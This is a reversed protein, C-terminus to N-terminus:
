AHRPEHKDRRKAQELRYWADLVCAVSWAQAPAGRPTHPADGDFIESISGLGAECLHGRIAALRSQALEANQSVRYEALAYHGLLWAWVTGQHYAMDRADVGGRYQGHYDPHGPALTRLGFPTLLERQVVGVVEAQIHPSLASHRLSVAIIQNPRLTADNGDTGDIVDYLGTGDGKVFREFGQRAHALRTRYFRDSCGALRCFDAMIALANIWLANIEVPKGIRPTVPVGAKCADMWTLQVGAEGAHLLGDRRDMAIGHGTGRLYWGLLERLLPLNRKLASRDDTEEIYARWAEFYWLTTDVANYKATEGADSFFNPLLGQVSRTAFGELIRRATDYRGTAFCLGPLAIMTDRGWEGFWPYGAIVADTHADDAFPRKILFSDAALLLQDIWDPAAGYEGLQVKVRRLLQSTRTQEAHMAEALYPSADTELSAVFGTWEGALLPLTVQGVCLHADHDPLGRETEQTLAFNEIWSYQPKILGSRTRFHLTHHGDLQVKMDGGSVDLAPNFIAHRTLGHHDRNNVMLRVCLRPEAYLSDASLLRWALCTTNEGAVMWIRAEIQLDAIAYRWVPMRGDLHFSTLQLHGQPELVDGLWRNSFLPWSQQGLIVTADAKAFVLSRGSPPHLSAVLLGHYRRTLTGAITGAAYGGLGNSLWWERREAQALDRCSQADFHIFDPLAGHM